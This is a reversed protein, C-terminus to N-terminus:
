EVNQINEYDYDLHPTRNRHRARNRRAGKKEEHEEHNLVRRNRNTPFRLEKRANRNVMLGDFPRPSAPM